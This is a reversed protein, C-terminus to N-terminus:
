ERIRINTQQGKLEEIKLIKNQITKLMNSERPTSVFPLKIAIRKNESSSPINIFYGPKNKAVMTTGHPEVTALFPTGLICAISIDALMFRLHLCFHKFCLSAEPVQFSIETPINGLGVVSTEIKQWFQIPIIEKNLLNLDSGTDLLTKLRFPMGQIKLDM